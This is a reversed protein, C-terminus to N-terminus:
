RSPLPMGLTDVVTSVDVDSRKIEIQKPM